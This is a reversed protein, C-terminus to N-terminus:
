DLTRKIAEQMAQRVSLNPKEACVADLPPRTKMENSVLIWTELMALHAERAEDSLLRADLNLTGSCRSELLLDIADASAPAATLFACALILPKM